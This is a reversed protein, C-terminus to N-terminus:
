QRKGKTKTTQKTNHQQCVKEAGARTRCNNSLIITDSTDGVASYLAFYKTPMTLKYKHMTVSYHGCVSAWLSLSAVDTEYKKARKKWEIM